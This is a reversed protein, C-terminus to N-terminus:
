KLNYSEKWNGIKSLLKVFDIPSLPVENATLNESQAKLTEQSKLLEYAEAEIDGIGKEVIGVWWNTKDAPMGDNEMAYGNKTLREKIGPIKEMRLQQKYINVHPLYQEQKNKDFKSPTVTGKSAIESFIQFGKSLTKPCTANESTPNETADTKIPICCREFFYRLLTDEDNLNIPRPISVPEADKEQLLLKLGYIAMDVTLFLKEHPLFDDLEEFLHARSPIKDSLHIVNPNIESFQSTPEYSTQIFIYLSNSRYTLEGRFFEHSSQVTKGNIIDILQKTDLDKPLNKLHNISINVLNGYLKDEIFNGIFKKNCLEPLTYHTIHFYSNLDHLNLNREDTDDEIVPSRDTNNYRCKRVAFDFFNNRPDSLINDVRLWYNPVSERENISSLNFIYRNDKPYTKFRLVRNVYSDQFADVVSIGTRVPYPDQKLRLTFISKFFDYVFSLNSTTIVTASSKNIGLSDCIKRGLFVTAILKALNNLVCAKGETIQYLAAVATQFSPASNFCRLKFEQAYLLDKLAFGSPIGINKFNATVENKLDDLCDQNATKIIQLDINDLLHFKVLLSFLPHFSFSQAPASIKLENGLSKLINQRQSESKVHNFLSAFEPIQRLSHDMMVWDACGWLMTKLDMILYNGEYSIFYRAFINRWFSHVPQKSIQDYTNKNNLKETALMFSFINESIGASLNSNIFNRIIVKAIRKDESPRKATKQVPDSQDDASKPQAPEPPNDPNEADYSNKAKEYNTKLINLYNSFFLFSYNELREDLRFQYRPLSSFNNSCMQELYYPVIHCDLMVLYTFKRLMKESQSIESQAYDKKQLINEVLRSFIADTYEPFKFFKIDEAMAECFARM